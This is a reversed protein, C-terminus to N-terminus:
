NKGGRALGAAVAPARRDASATADERRPDIASGPLLRENGEVVV